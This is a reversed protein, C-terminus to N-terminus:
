PHIYLHLARRLAGECGHSSYSADPGRSAAAAAVCVSVVVHVRMARLRLTIVVAMPDVQRSCLASVAM